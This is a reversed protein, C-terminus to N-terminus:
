PMQGEQKKSKSKKMPEMSLAQSIWYMAKLQLDDDLLYFITQNRFNLNFRHLGKENKGAYEFTAATFLDVPYYEYLKYYLYAGEWILNVNAKGGELQKAKNLFGTVRLCEILQGQFCYLGERKPFPTRFSRVGQENQVTVDFSKLKTNLKLVSGYRVKDIWVELYSYEPRLTIVGQKKLAGKISISKRKEVLKKDKDLLTEKQIYRNQKYGSHIELAYNIGADNFTWMTKSNSKQSAGFPLHSCSSNIVLVFFLFLYFRVM